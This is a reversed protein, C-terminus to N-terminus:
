EVACACACADVGREVLGLLGQGQIGPIGTGGLEQIRGDMGVALAGLQGRHVPLGLPRLLDAKGADQRRPPLRPQGLDLIGLPILLLGYIHGVLGLVLLPDFVVSLGFGPILRGVLQRGAPKPVAAAAAARGAGRAHGLKGPQLPMGGQRRERGQHGGGVLM